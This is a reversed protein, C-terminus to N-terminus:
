TSLCSFKFREISVLKNSVVNAVSGPPSGAHPYACHPSFHGDASSLESCSTKTRRREPKWWVCSRANNGWGRTVALCTRSQCTGGFYQLHWSWPHAPVFYKHKCRKKTGLELTWINFKWLSYITFIWCIYTTFPLNWWHIISHSSIFVIWYNHISDLTARLQLTVSIRYSIHNIPKILKHPMYRLIHNLPMAPCSINRQSCQLGTCRRSYCSAPLFM